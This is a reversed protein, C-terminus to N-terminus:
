DMAVGSSRLHDCDINTCTIIVHAFTLELRTAPKKEGYTRGM